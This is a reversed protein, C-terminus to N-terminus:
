EKGGKVLTLKEKIKEKLSETTPKDDRHFEEGMGLVEGRQLKADSVQEADKVYLVMEQEDKCSMLKKTLNLKNWIWGPIRSEKRLKPILIYEREMQSIKARLGDNELKLRQIEVEHIDKIKAM